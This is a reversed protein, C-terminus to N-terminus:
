RGDAEQELHGWSLVRSPELRIVPRNELDHKAYQDYKERLRSIARGHGDSAADTISATGRIQVWGLNAWDSAYHDVVLAVRPDARINRCRQLDPIEGEKPKEDIPSVLTDDVFAFCIPIVHPRQESDVTALRGLPARELYAREHSTFM